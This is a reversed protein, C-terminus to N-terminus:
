RTCELVYVSLARLGDSVNKHGICTKDLWFTSGRGDGLARVDRQSACHQQGPRSASWPGHAAGGDDVFSEIVRLGLDNDTVDTSRSVM